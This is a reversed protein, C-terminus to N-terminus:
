PVLSSRAPAPTHSTDPGADEIGIEPPSGSTTGANARVIHTTANSSRAPRRPESHHVFPLHVDEIRDRAALCQDHEVSVCADEIPDSQCCWRGPLPRARSTLSSLVTRTQVRRRAASRDLRLGLLM